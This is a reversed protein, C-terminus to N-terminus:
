PAVARYFRNSHVDSQPDSFNLPGAITNTWIPLWSVLDTSAEVVALQGAPGTLIFGFQGGSFGFGPGSSLFVTALYGKRITNNLTDAVYVNGAGDVAVGYPGPPYGCCTPYSGFRAASGTGDVSGFSGALGGLTTVVGTATVKRITHNGADAVYVNGASDVAVGYPYHFRAASGTGDASGGVFGGLGDPNPQTLGALTTVVGAPTVKRITHNETDAVYGNGTSDMAVGSPGYFRAESGTGDASGDSGALGALTTVVGAPTVKRITHNGTDAVYANGASDVAVGSPGNFQAASGTGDASGSGSGNPGALGALTMVVGALTVKRITNNYSDAVYVNGASDMAVGSPGYFRAASGTGDASGSGDPGALGALTTVVGAPTVKRITNNHADAVYVTGTSDAVVGSPGAFRAESGAGDASSDGVPDGNLDFQALGALTTFTYPEYTSQASVRPLLWAHAALFLEFTLLKIKTKM